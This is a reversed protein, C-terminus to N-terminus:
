SIMSNFLLSNEKFVFGRALSVANTRYNCFTNPLKHIIQFLYSGIIFYHSIYIFHIKTDIPNFDQLFTSEQSFFRNAWFNCLNLVLNRVALPKKLYRM